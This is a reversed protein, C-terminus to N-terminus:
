EAHDSQCSPKGILSQLAHKSNNRPGLLQLMLEADTLRVTKARRNLVESPFAVRGQLAGFARDLDALLAAEDDPERM